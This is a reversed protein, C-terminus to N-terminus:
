QTQFVWGHYQEVAKRTQGVLAKQNLLLSPLAVGKEDAPEEVIYGEDSFPIKFFSTKKQLIM